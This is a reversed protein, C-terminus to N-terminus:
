AGKNLSTRVPEPARMRMAHGQGAGVYTEAPLTM